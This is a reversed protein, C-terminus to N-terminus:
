IRDLSTSTTFQSIQLDHLTPGLTDIIAGGLCLDGEYFVVAQGPTIAKSPQDFVVNVTQPDLIFVTCSELLFVIKHIM